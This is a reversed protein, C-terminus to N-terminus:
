SAAPKRDLVEVVRGHSYWLAPGLHALLRALSREAAEPTSVLAWRRWSGDGAKFQVEYKTTM